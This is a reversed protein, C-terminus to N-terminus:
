VRPFNPSCSDRKVLLVLSPRRAYGICKRARRPEHLEWFGVRGGAPSSAAQESQAREVSWHHSCAVLLPVAIWNLTDKWSHQTSWGKVWTWIACGGLRKSQTERGGHARPIEKQLVFGQSAARLTCNQLVVCFPSIWDWVLDCVFLSPASQLLQWVSMLPEVDSYTIPNKLCGGGGRGGKLNGFHWFAM